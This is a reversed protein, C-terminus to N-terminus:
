HKAVSKGEADLVVVEGLNLERIGARDELPRRHPDAKLLRRRAGTILSKGSVGFRKEIPVHAFIGAPASEEPPSWCLITKLILQHGNAVNTVLVSVCPPSASGIIM